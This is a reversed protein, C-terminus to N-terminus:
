AGRYPNLVHAALLVPWVDAPVPTALAIPILAPAAWSYIRAWDSTWLLPVWAVALLGLSATADGWLALPLIIGWPLAIAQWNMWQGRKFGAATRWPETLWTNDRKPDLERYAAGISLVTMAFGLLPWPVGGNIAAWWVASERVFGGAVGLAAQGWWPMDRDLALIVPVMGWADVLIPHRLNFRAVGPLGLLLVAARWDDLVWAIAVGQVFLGLFTFAQWRGHAAGIVLPLGFRMCFPMPVREGRGM